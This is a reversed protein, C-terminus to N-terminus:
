RNRPRLALSGAFALLAMGSTEPVVATINDVGVPGGVADGNLTPMNSQSVALIRMEGVSTLFTALAPPSNVATLSGADLSFVAHHWAGDNNVNFATSSIYGPTIGTGTKLAIRMPMPSTTSFNKL